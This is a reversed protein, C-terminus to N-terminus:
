EGRARTWIAKGEYYAYWVPGRIMYGPFWWLNDLTEEPLLDGMDSRRVDWALIPASTLASVEEPRIWDWGNGIHYEFLDYMLRDSGIEDLRAEVEERGDPTLTMELDGNELERLRLYGWEHDIM